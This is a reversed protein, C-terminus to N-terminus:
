AAPATCSISQEGTLGAVCGAVTYQRLGPCPFIPAFGEEAFLATFENTALSAADYVNTLTIVDQRAVAVSGAPYALFNVSSPLATLYPTTADGGPFAPALAGGTILGDQYGRVFQVRINRVSFLGAIYSDTVGLLNGTDGPRRSLDARMQPLVWHPIAVEITANPSMLQQYRIDEAALEVAALVASTFSDIGDGTGSPDGNPATVVTAAGAQTVMAAIILRNMEQANAALLGDTWLNVLEPYGAAQLLSVRVCLALVDLRRDTFTPCPIVSCTKLTDAIVQAETLFNSGGGVAVANAYITAFSPEATYNLGGRRVTVTPLDLLGSQGNWLRCLDYDNESPACWGAAATLSAGQDINHQWQKALSGGHLRAESRAHQLVKQGDTDRTVTFDEGRNRSFQAIAHRTSAGAGSRGYQQSSALLAESIETLGDYQDGSRKGTYGAADSSVFATITSPRVAPMVPKTKTALESVSPVSVPEDRKQVATVEVEKAPEEVVAAAETTDEATEDTAPEVVDSHADDLHPVDLAELASFKAKTAQLEAAKATRDAIEMSIADVHSALETLESTEDSTLSEKTSLEQGRERAKTYEARLADDDLATADFAEPIKKTM